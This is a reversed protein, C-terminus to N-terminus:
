ARLPTTPPFSILCGKKPLGNPQFTAPDGPPTRPDPELSWRPTGIITLAVDAPSQQESM